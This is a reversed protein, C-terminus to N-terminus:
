INAIRSFLKINLSESFAVCYALDIFTMVITQMSYRGGDSM